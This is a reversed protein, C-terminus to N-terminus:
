PNEPGGYFLEVHTYFLEYHAYVTQNEVYVNKQAGYVTTQWKGNKRSKQQRWLCNTEWKGNKKNKKCNKISGYVIGNESLTKEYSKAVEM